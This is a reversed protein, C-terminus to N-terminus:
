NEKFTKMDSTAATGSGDSHSRIVDLLYRTEAEMPTPLYNGVTIVSQGASAAAEFCVREAFRLWGEFQAWTVNARRALDPFNHARQTNRLPSIKQRIRKIEDQYSSANEFFKARQSRYHNLLHTRQMPTLEREAVKQPIQLAIQILRDLGPEKDTAFVKAMSFIYGTEFAVAMYHVPAGVGDELEKCRPLILPRILHILLHQYINAESLDRSVFAETDKISWRHKKATDSM